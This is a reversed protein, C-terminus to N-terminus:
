LTCFKLLSVAYPPDEMGLTRLNGRETTTKNKLKKQSNWVAHPIETRQGPDFGRGVADFTYLKLWQVAM